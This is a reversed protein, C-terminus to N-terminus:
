LSWWEGDIFVCNKRNFPVFDECGDKDVPCPAGAARLECDDCAPQILEAEKKSGWLRARFRNGLLYNTTM